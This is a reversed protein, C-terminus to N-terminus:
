WNECRLRNAPSPNATNDDSFTYLAGDRDIAVAELNLLFATPLVSKDNSTEDLRYSKSFDYVNSAVVLAREGSGGAAGFACDSLKNAGLGTDIPAVTTSAALVGNGDLTLCYLKGDARSAAYGACPASIHAARLCLGEYNKECNVGGLDACAYTPAAGVAYADQDRVLGGAGDPAFRRVAGSSTLTYLKGARWAIGELDDSAPADLPLTISRPAGNPLPYLLAVGANGSDSVVLLERVGATLEVETAASAEPLAITSPFSTDDECAFPGSPIWVDADADLVSAADARADSRADIAPEAADDEPLTADKEPTAVVDDDDDDDDDGAGQLPTDAVSACAALLAASLCWGFTRRM